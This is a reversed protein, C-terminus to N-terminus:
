VARGTLKDLIQAFRDDGPSPDRMASAAIAMKAALYDEPAGARYMMCEPKLAALRRIASLEDEWRYRRAGELGHIAGSRIYFGSRRRLAALRSSIEQPPAMGESWVVTCRADIESALRSLKESDTYPAPAFKQMAFEASLWLDPRARIMTEVANNIHAIPWSVPKQTNEGENRSNFCELCAPCHCTVYDVDGTEFNFGDVGADAAALLMERLMSNAATKSPCYIAALSRKGEKSDHFKEPIVARAEPIAACIHKGESYGNLGFGHIVSINREHAYDCLTRGFGADKWADLGWLVVGNCPWAAAFDIFERWKDELNKMWTWYYRGLM